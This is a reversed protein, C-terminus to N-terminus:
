FKNMSEQQQVQLSADKWVHGCASFVMCCATCLLFLTELSTGRYVCRIALVHNISTQLSGDGVSEAEIREAQRGGPISGIRQFYFVHINENQSTSFAHRAFNIASYGIGLMRTHASGPM